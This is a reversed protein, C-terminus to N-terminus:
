VLFSVVPYKNTTGDRINWLRFVSFQCCRKPKIKQKNSLNITESLKVVALFFFFRPCYLQRTCFRVGKVANRVLCVVSVLLFKRHFHIRYFFFVLLLLCRRLVSSRLFVFPCFHFISYHCIYERRKVKQYKELNRGKCADCLVAIDSM